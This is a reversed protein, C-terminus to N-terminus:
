KRNIKFLKRNYKNALFPYHGEIGRVQGHSNIELIAFGDDTPIIDVIFYPTMPVYGCLDKVLQKLEDWNDMKYTEIEKGTDPHLKINEFYHDDKRYIPNFAKGEELTLGTYITGDYDTVLGAAKCGLRLCVGTMQPGDQEDYIAIIRMVGFADEGCLERIKKHPLVYQTIIYNDLSSLINKFEEINKKERNVFYEDNIREFKYFGVGRGGEVLKAAVPEKDVLAIIDEVTGNKKEPIDLPLIKGNRLFYYHKPLYKNFPKLLYYTNLKNEAWFNFETNMYNEKGFFDFDSIYDNYNEKTIGYWKVKYAQLGKEHWWKKEEKSMEKYDLYDYTYERAVRDVRFSIVGKKKAMKVYKYYTLKHKLDGKYQIARKIDGLQTKLSM